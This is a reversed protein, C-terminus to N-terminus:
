GLCRAQVSAGHAREDKEVDVVRQHVARPGEAALRFLEAAVVAKRVVGGAPQLCRIAVAIAPM